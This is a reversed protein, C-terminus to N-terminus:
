QLALRQFAVLREELQWAQGRAYAAWPDIADPSKRLARTAWRRAAASDGAREALRSLALLASAADPIVALAQQYANQAQDTKKEAEARAGDFLLALYRMWAPARSNAVAVFAATADKEDGALLRTRGWRLTAEILMPERRRAHDFDAQADFVISRWQDLAEPMYIQAAVSRDVLRLWADTEHLSGRALLLEPDDRFRELGSALTTRLLDLNVVDQLRSAMVLYWLRVYARVDPWSIANGGTAPAKDVPAASSGPSRRVPGFRDFDAQLEFIEAVVEHALWRQRDLLQTDYPAITLAALTHLLAAVRLVQLRDARARNFRTDDTESARLKAFHQVDANLRALTHRFRREITEVDTDLAENVAGSADGDLYRNLLTRYATEDPDVAGPTGFRPPEAASELPDASVIAICLAATVTFRM